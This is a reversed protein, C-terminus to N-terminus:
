WDRHEGQTPDLVFHFVAGRDMIESTQVQTPDMAGILDARALVLNGQRNNLLLWRKFENLTPFLKNGVRKWIESIFVKESGFRGSSPMTM